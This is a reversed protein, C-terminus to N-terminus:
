GRIYARCNKKVTLYVGPMLLQSALLRRYAPSPVRALYPLLLRLPRMGSGACFQHAIRSFELWKNGLKELREIETRAPSPNTNIWIALSTELCGTMRRFNEEHHRLLGQGDLAQQRGAAGTPTMAVTICWFKMCMYFWV